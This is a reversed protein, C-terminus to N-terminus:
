HRLMYHLDIANSISEFTDPDIESARMCTCEYDCNFCITLVEKEDSILLFNEKQPVVTLMKLRGNVAAEIQFPEEM